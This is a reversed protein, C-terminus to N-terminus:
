IENEKSDSDNVVLKLKKASSSVVPTTEKSIFSTSSVFKKQVMM